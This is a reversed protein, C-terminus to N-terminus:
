NWETNRIRIRSGTGKQGRSGVYWVMKIAKHCEKPYFTSSYLEKKFQSMNKKKVQEFTVYFEIKHYKYSWFFPYLKGM